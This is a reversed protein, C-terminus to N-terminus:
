TGGFGPPASKSRKYPLKQMNKGINHTNGGKGVLKFKMKRHKKKVNAQFDEQVLSITSLIADKLSKRIRYQGIEKPNVWKFDIHEEPQLLIDGKPAKCTFFYTNKHSNIPKVDSIDLNTEEKVERRAGNTPKEGMKLHGGPLDWDNRGDSRKLILIENQKNLIVVKSVNETDKTTNEQLIEDDYLFDWDKEVDFPEVDAQKAAKEEESAEEYTELSLQGKFRSLVARNPKYFVFFFPNEDNEYKFEEKKQKSVGFRNNKPMFNAWVRLADISQEYDDPALGDNGALELAMLYLITGVGESDKPSNSWALQWYPMDTRKELVVQANGKVKGVELEKTQLNLPVITIKKSSQTIKYHFDKPGRSEKILQRWNEFLQQM